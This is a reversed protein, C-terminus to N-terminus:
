SLNSGKILLLSWYDRKRAQSSYSYVINSFMIIEKHEYFRQYIHTACCCFICKINQQHEQFWQTSSAINRENSYLGNKHMQMYLANLVCLNQTFSESLVITEFSNYARINPFYFVTSRKSHMCNHKVTEEVTHITNVFSHM